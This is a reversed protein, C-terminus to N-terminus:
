FRYPSFPVGYLLHSIGYHTLMPYRCSVFGLRFNKFPIRTKSIVVRKVHGFLESELTGESLASCNLPVILRAFGEAM